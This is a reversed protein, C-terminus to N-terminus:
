KASDGQYRYGPQAPQVFTRDGLDTLWTRYSGLALILADVLLVRFIPEVSEGTDFQDKLLRM